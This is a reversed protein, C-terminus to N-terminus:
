SFKDNIKEKSSDLIEQCNTKENKWIKVEKPAEIGITAIKGNIKILIIKINDIFIIDDKKMTRILM